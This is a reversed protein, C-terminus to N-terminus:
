SKDKHADMQKKLKKLRKDLIIKLADWLLIFITFRGKICVDVELVSREFDPLLEMQFKKPFLTKVVCYVGYVYGTVDPTSGGFVIWGRIKRPLLNKVLHLVRSLAERVFPKTDTEDWLGRYFSYETQFGRLTEGLPKKQKKPSDQIEPAPEDLDQNAREQGDSVQDTSAQSTQDSSFQGASPVKEEPEQPRVNNGQGGNGNKRKKPTKSVKDRKGLLSFWAIKLVPKGPEPYHFLLRVFGFLWKVKVSVRQGEVDKKGKVVYSIPFFLLLLILALLLGLIGLLIWGVVAM